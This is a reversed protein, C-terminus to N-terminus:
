GFVEEAFSEIDAAIAVGSNLHIVMQEVSDYAGTAGDVLGLASVSIGGALKTIKSWNTLATSNMSSIQLLQRRLAPITDEVMRLEEAMQFTHKLTSDLGDRLGKIKSIGKKNTATDIFNKNRDLAGSWRKETGEIKKIQSNVKAQKKLLARSTRSYDGEIDTLKSLASDCTPVLDIGIVGNLFNGGLEHARRAHKKDSKKQEEKTDFDQMARKLNVGRFSYSLAELEFKLIITKKKLSRAFKSIDQALALGSRAAGIAALPAAGPAAVAALSVTLGVGSKTVEVIRDRQYNKALKKQLGLGDLVSIPIDRLEKKLADEHKQLIKAGEKQLDAKTKNLESLKLSVLKGDKITKFAGNDKVLKEFDKAVARAASDCTREITRHLRDAAGKEDLERCMSDTFRVTMIMPKLKIEYPLKKSYSLYPKVLKKLDGKWFVNSLAEKPAAENVFDFEAKLDLLDNWEQDIERLLEDLMKQMGKQEVDSEVLKKVEQRAKSLASRVKGLTKLLSAFDVKDKEANAKDYDIKKLAGYKAVETTMVKFSTPEPVTKLPPDGRNRFKPNPIQVRWAQKAWKNNLFVETRYKRSKALREYKQWETTAKASAVDHPM